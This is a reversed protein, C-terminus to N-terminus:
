LSKDEWAMGDLLYDNGTSQVFTVTVRKASTSVPSTPDGSDVNQIAEVIFVIKADGIKGESLKVSISRTSMGYPGSALPNASVMAAQEQQLVSKYSTSADLLADSYGLFGNQNSGSGIREVSSRAKNELVKLPDIPPPTTSPTVTTPPTQGNTPQSPTSPLNSSPQLTSPTTPLQEQAPQKKFFPSLLLYLGLGLLLLAILLLLGLKTRKEM